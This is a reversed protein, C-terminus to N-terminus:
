ADGVHRPSNLDTLDRLFVSSPNTASATALTRGGAGFPVPANSAPLSGQETEQLDLRAAVFKNVVEPALRADGIHKRRQAERGASGRILGRVRISRGLRGSTVSRSTRRPTGPTIRLLRRDTTGRALVDRGTAARRGDSM